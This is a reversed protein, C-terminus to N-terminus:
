PSRLGDNAPAFRSLDDVALIGLLAQKVFDDMCRPHRRLSALLQRSILDLQDLAPNETARPTSGNALFYDFSDILVVHQLNQPQTARNTM